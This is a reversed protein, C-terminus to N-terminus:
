SQKRQTTVLERLGPLSTNVRLGMEDLHKQEERQMAYDYDRRRQRHLNDLTKRDRTALLMEQWAKAAAEEASKLAATQQECYQELQSCWARVQQLKSITNGALVEKCLVSRAAALEHSSANLGATAEECVLLAEAYHKQAVREKQERLVHLSQLSFRFSKM